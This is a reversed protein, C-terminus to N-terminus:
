QPLVHPAFVREEPSPSVTFTTGEVDETRLNWLYHEMDRQFLPKIVRCFGTLSVHDSLSKGNKAHHCPPTTM